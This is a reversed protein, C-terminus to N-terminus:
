SYTALKPCYKIGQKSDQENGTTSVGGDNEAYVILCIAM